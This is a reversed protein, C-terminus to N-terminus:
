THADPATEAGDEVVIIVRNPLCAIFEGSHSIHGMGMCIKDPCDAESVWAEGDAIVLINTGGNLAFTGADSLPYRGAEEGNVSVVAVPGTAPARGRAYRTVLLLALALVLLLGALLLDRRYATKKEGNM